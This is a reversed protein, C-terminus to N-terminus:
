SLASSSPTVGARDCAEIIIEYAFGDAADAKGYPSADFRRRVRAYWARTEAFERTVGSVFPNQLGRSVSSGSFFLSWIFRVLSFIGKFFAELLNDVV